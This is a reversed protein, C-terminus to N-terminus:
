KCTCNRGQDCDQTCRSEFKNEAMRKLKRAFVGGLVGFDFAFLMGVLIGLTVLTLMIDVLIM